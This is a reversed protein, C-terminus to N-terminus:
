KQDDNDPITIKKIGWLDEKEGTSLCIRKDISCIDRARDETVNCYSAITRTSRWQEKYINRKGNEEKITLIYTKGGRIKLTAKETTVNMKLEASNEDKTLNICYLNRTNTSKRIKANGAWKICLDHTLFKRFKETESNNESINNWDAVYKQKTVTLLWNYIRGEHRKRISRESLLKILWVAVGAIVSGICGIIIGDWIPIGM